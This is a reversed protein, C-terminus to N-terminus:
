DDRLVGVYPERFEVWQDPKQGATGLLLACKAAGEPVRGAVRLETWDAQAPVERLADLGGGGDPYWGGDANQWRLRLSMRGNFSRDARAQVRAFLWDGPKVELVQIWCASDAGRIRAGTDGLVFEGAANKWLSWGAPAGQSQWDHGEPHEGSGPRLEPNKLANPPAGHELVRLALEVSEARGQAALEARLGELHARAQAPDDQGAIEMVANTLAAAAAMELTSDRTAYYGLEEMAWRYTGSLLADEERFQEWFARARGVLTLLEAALRSRQRPDPEREMKEALFRGQLYHYPLQWGLTFFRVRQRETDDKALKAADALLRNCREATREDFIRLQTDLNGLGEFWWGPRRTRWAKELLEFYAQMPRRAGPFMRRFFDDLLADVNVKPDLLCHALVYHLPGGVGWMPVDETYYGRLLRQQQVRRFDRAILHPYYRPVMWGLTTYDYRYLRGNAVKLWRRTFDLDGKLYASDHYQAADQTLFVAVNAPLREIREPPAEVAWYAILGLTRDPYEKGVETAVETVFDYYRDSMVPGTRWTRGPVDLAKCADCECWGGGDNIGLSYWEKEKDPHTAFYRKADEIFLRRVEPNSLCPQWDQYDDTPPIFRKGGRLPFYDPHEKGYRSPVIVAFLNHSHYQPCGRHDVSVRNRVAWRDCEFQPDKEGVWSCREGHWIYGFARPRLFPVRRQRGEPVALQARRPVSEFLDTPLFWRVGAYRELFDYVAFKTSMDIVGCLLVRNGRAEIGWAEDPVGAPPLGAQRAARTRGVFIGANGFLDGERKIAVPRGCVRALYKQLESAADAEAPTAADPIVVPLPARGPAFLTVEPPAAQAVATLFLLLAVMRSALM